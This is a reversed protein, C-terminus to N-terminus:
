LPQTKVTESPMQLPHNRQSTACLGERRKEKENGRDEESGKEKSRRREKFFIKKKKLQLLSCMKKIWEDATPFKPQM